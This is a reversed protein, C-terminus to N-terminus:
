RVPKAQAMKVWMLLIKERNDTRIQGTKYKNKPTEM